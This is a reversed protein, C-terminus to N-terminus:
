AYWKSVREYAKVIQNAGVLALAECLLDDARSHSAEPDGHGQLALLEMENLIETLRSRERDNFVAM